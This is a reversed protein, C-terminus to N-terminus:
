QNIKGVIYGIKLMTTDPWVGKGGGSPSLPSSTGSSSGIIIVFSNSVLLFMTSMLTWQMWVLNSPHFNVLLPSPSGRENAM